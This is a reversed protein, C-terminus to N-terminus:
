PVASPAQLTGTGMLEGIETHSYGVSHAVAFSDQGLKPAACLHANPAFGAWTLPDSTLQMRAQSFSAHEQWPIVRFLCVNRSTALSEWYSAPADAFLKEVDPVLTTDEGRDLWEKRDVVECFRKGHKEQVAQLSIWANDRCKYFRSAPKTGDFVGHTGFKTRNAESLGEAKMADFARPLYLSRFGEDMNSILHMGRRSPNALHLLIKILPIQVGGIMDAFFTSYNPAELFWEGCGSNAIFNLDHGAYSAYKGGFGRLSVYLLDPNEESLDGYGLGIKDLVGDRANEILIDAEAVLRRVLDVGEAKRTDVALSRKGQNLLDFLSSNKLHRLPDGEPLREVKVVDAGYQSLIRTLYPGTLMVSLDIVRLHRIPKEQEDSWLSEAM